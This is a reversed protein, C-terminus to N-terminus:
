ISFVLNLLEGVLEAGLHLLNDLGLFLIDHGDLTQLDVMDEPVDITQLEVMDEPVDITQLEVM